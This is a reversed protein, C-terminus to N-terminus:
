DDIRLFQGQRNFEIELGSGLEVEFKGKTKKLERIFENPFSAKVYTAIGVPVIKDPVAKTKMKVKEWDGLADFEVKSGDKMYVTYEKKSFFKSFLIVSAVDAQVFHDKYFRIAKAPLQIFPIPKGVDNNSADVPVVTFVILVAVLFLVIRNM